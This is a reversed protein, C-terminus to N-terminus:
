VRNVEESTRCGYGLTISQSVIEFNGTVKQEPYHLRIKDGVQVDPNFRRTYEVSFAVAQEEKLRRIAYDAISENEGLDCDTEELWIERGRNITSLPSDPNDDRAVASLDDEIARFVNPCDYWDRTVSLQPEISDNDLADFSAVVGNTKKVIRITGDGDIKLQWNIANLIKEVM